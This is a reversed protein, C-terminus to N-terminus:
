FIFDEEGLDMIDVGSLFISSEASTAIMVGGGQTWANLILENFSGFAELASLDIVERDNSAEFDRITDNGHGSKFVFTDANFKGFLIDDGAGGELHDFGAGGVLLDNGDGAVLVDNNRGGRLVDDGAGGTLTDNGVGGILRDLGWGGLITDNGQGGILADNGDGGDLHDDGNGGILRDSGDGGVLVDEGNGAVLLDHGSGGDLTDDGDGGTLSDQGADGYVQDNGRGGVVLDDGMGGSLDDNGNGGNLVDNGAGGVLTDHNMGGYIQDDGDQGSLYDDGDNGWIRDNGSSAYIADNGNGGFVVDNMTGSYITDNGGDGYISDNGWNGYLLDNGSGGHLTDSSGGGILTDDGEHGYLLDRGNGGEIWDDGGAAYVTDNGGNLVLTEDTGNGHHMTNTESFLVVSVDSVEHGYHFTLQVVEYPNLGITFIGDRDNDVGSIETIAADRHHNGAEEYFLRLGSLASYDEVFMSLDVSHTEFEDSRSSLFITKTYSETIGPEPNGIVDQFATVEIASNAEWGIDVLMDGVISQRLIDFMAGRTTNTVVDMGNIELVEIEEDQLIFSNRSAHLFPWAFAVDVSAEIMNTIHELLMSAGHVGLDVGDEGFSISNTINYEGVYTTLEKGAWAEWNADGWGNLNEDLGRDERFAGSDNQFAGADGDRWYFNRLVGDVTQLAGPVSEFAQQIAINADTLSGEFAGGLNGSAQLIIHPNVGLAAAGNTLAVAALGAAEGYEIERSEDGPTRGGWYENGLEFGSVVGPFDRAIIESMQELGELIESQSPGEFKELSEVPVVLNVLVENDEAYQLFNRLFEPIDGDVIIGTESFIYKDQGAPFRVHSVSFKELAALAELTPVGLENGENNGWPPEGTHANVLANVNFIENELTGGTYTVETITLDHMTFGESTLHDVETGPTANPHLTWPQIASLHTSFRDKRKLKVDRNKM